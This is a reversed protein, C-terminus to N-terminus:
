SVNVLYKKGVAMLGILGSALLSLTGTEPTATSTSEEISHINYVLPGAAYTTTSPGASNDVELVFANPVATVAAYTPFTSPDSLLQAMTALGNGGNIFWLVDSWNSVVSNAPAAADKLVVYGATVPAPLTVKNSMDGLDTEYFDCTFAAATGSCGSVPIPTAKSSSAMSLVGLAMVALYFMKKGM